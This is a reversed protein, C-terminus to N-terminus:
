PPRSAGSPSGLAGADGNSSLFLLVEPLRTLKSLKEQFTSNLPVAQDQVLQVIETRLKSMMGMVDERISDKVQPELLAALDELSPMMPPTIEKTKAVQLKFAATLAKIEETTQKCAIRIESLEAREKALDSELQLITTSREQVEERLKSVEGNRAVSDEIVNVLEEALEKIDKGCSEVEEKLEAMRKTYHDGKKNAFKKKFEEIEVDVYEQIRGVSEEDATAVSQELIKLRNSITVIRQMVTSVEADDAGTKFGNATVPTPLQEPATTPVLTASSSVSATKYASPQNVNAGNDLRRRKLGREAEMPDVVDVITTPIVRSGIWDVVERLVRDNKLADEALAMIQVKMEEIKNDLELLSNEDGQGGERKVRIPWFDSSFMKEVVTAQRKKEEEVRTKAMEIAQTMSKQADTSIFKSRAGEALKQLTALDTLAHQQATRASVAESLLIIRENWLERRKEPPIDRPANNSQRSESRPM